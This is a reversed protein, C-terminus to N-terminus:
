NMLFDAHCSECEIMGEERRHQFEHGCYSCHASVYELTLIRYTIGTISIEKKFEDMLYKPISMTYSVRKTFIKVFRLYEEDSIIEKKFVWKAIFGRSFAMKNKEEQTMVHSNSSVKKIEPFYVNFEVTIPRNEPDGKKFNYIDDNIEFTDLYGKKILNLIRRVKEDPRVTKSREPDRLKATLRYPDQKLKEMEEQEEERLFVDTDVFLHKLDNNM